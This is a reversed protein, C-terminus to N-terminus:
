EPLTSVPSINGHEINSLFKKVVDVGIAYGIGVNGLSQGCYRGGRCIVPVVAVATNVGV